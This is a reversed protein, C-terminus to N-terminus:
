KEGAADVIGTVADANDKNLTGQLNHRQPGTKRKGLLAARAEEDLYPYIADYLCDLVDKRAQPYVTNFRKTPRTQPVPPSSTPPKKRVSVLGYRQVILTTAAVLRLTCRAVYSATRLPHYRSGAEAYM